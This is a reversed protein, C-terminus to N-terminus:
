IREKRWDFSINTARNTRIGQNQFVEIETLGPKLRFNPYTSSGQLIPFLTKMDSNYIMELGLGNATVIPNVTRQGANYLKIIQSGVPELNFSIGNQFADLDFNFADFLDESEKHNDLKFPYLDFTIEVKLRNFNYEDTVLVEKCKGNYYFDPEYSDELKQDFEGMLLNEITTQFDRATDRIRLGTGVGFRYFTYTIERNEYVRNGILNSLDIVGQMYPISATVEKENPTNAVREHLNLNFRTSQFLGFTIYHKPSKNISLGHTLDIM